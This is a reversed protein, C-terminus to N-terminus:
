RGLTNMEWPEGICARSAPRAPRPHPPGPVPGPLGCATARGGGGMPFWGGCPVRRPGGGGLGGKKRRGRGGWGGRRWVGRAGGADRPGVRGVLVEQREEEREARRAVVVLGLAEVAADVGADQGHVGVHEVLLFALPRHADPCLRRIIM